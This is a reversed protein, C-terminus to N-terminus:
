DVIEGRDDNNALDIALQQVSGASVHFVLHCPSTRHGAKKAEDYSAIGYYGTHEPNKAIITAHPWSRNIHIESVKLALEANM